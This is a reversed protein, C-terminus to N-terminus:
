VPEIEDLTFLFREVSQYRAAEREAPEGELVLVVHVRNEADQEFAEIVGIKDTLAVDSFVEDHKPKIKVRDGARLEAGKLIVAAVRRTNLSMKFNIAPQRSAL